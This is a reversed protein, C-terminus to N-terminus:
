VVESKQYQCIVPIKGFETLNYRGVTPEPFQQKTMAIKAPNDFKYLKGIDM